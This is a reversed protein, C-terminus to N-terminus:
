EMHNSPAFELNSESPSSEIASSQQEGNVRGVLDRITRTSEEIFSRMARYMQAQEEFAIRQAKIMEYQENIISLQRRGTRKRKVPQVNESTCSSDDSEIMSQTPVTRANSVPNIAPDTQAQNQAEVACEAAIRDLVSTVSDDIRISPSAAVRKRFSLDLEDLRRSSPSRCRPPVEVYARAIAIEYDTMFGKRAAIVDELTVETNSGLKEINLIHRVRNKQHRWVRKIQELRLKRQCRTMTAMHVEDWAEARKRNIETERTSCMDLLIERRKLVEECIVVTHDETMRSPNKDNSQEDKSTVTGSETTCHPGHRSEVCIGEREDDNM